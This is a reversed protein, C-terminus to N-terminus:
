FLIQDVLKSSTANNHRPTNRQTKQRDDMMAWQQTKGQLCFFLTLMPRKKNHTLSSAVTLVCHLTCCRFYKLNLIPQDAGLSLGKFVALETLARIWEGKIGASDIM